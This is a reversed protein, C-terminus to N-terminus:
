FDEVSSFAGSVTSVDQLVKSKSHQGDREVKRASIDYM